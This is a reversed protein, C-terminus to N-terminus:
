NRPTHGVPTIEKLLINAVIKEDGSLSSGVNYFSYEPFNGERSEMLYNAHKGMVVNLYSHERKMLHKEAESGKTELLYIAGLYLNVISSSSEDQEELLKFNRKAKEYDSNQFAIRAEELCKNIGKANVLVTGVTKRVSRRLTKTWSEQELISSIENSQVSTTKSTWPASFRQSLSRKLRKLTTIQQKPCEESRLNEQSGFDSGFLAKAQELASLQSSKKGLTNYKQLSDVTQKTPRVLTYSHKKYNPFSVLRECPTIPIHNVAKISM